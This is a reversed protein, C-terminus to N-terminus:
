PALSAGASKARPQAQQRMVEEAIPADYGSALEGDDLTALHGRLNIGPRM